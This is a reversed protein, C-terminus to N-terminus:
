ANIFQGEAGPSPPGSKNVAASPHLLSHRGDTAIPHLQRPSRARAERLSRWTMGAKSFPRRRRSSGPPTSPAPFSRPLINSKECIIYVIREIFLICKVRQGLKKGGFAVVRGFRADRDWPRRPARRRWSFPRKARRDRAVEGRQRRAPFLSVKQRRARQFERSRALNTVSTFRGPALDPADM